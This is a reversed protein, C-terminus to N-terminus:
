VADAVRAGARLRYLGPHAVSGAVYVVLTGTATVTPGHPQRSPLPVAAPRIQPARPAPHWIALAALAAVVCAIFLRQMCSGDRPASRGSLYDRARLEIVM